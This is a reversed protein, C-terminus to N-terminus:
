LGYEKLALKLTSADRFRHAQFGAARAGSVNKEVDDVFLTRSPDVAFRSALRRFIEASPKLVGEEGSVVAGDFLQLLPYHARRARYVHAPMNTLLLLPVGNAKLDEVVAVMGPVEGAVMEDQRKWAHVLDAHGPYRAALEGCAEDFSRGADLQLNWEMSCVETLFWELEAPDPILRRYLFRPNWDLLVGGIDFVVTHV